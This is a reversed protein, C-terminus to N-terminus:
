LVTLCKKSEPISQLPNIKIKTIEYLKLLTDVFM